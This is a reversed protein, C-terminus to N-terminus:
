RVIHTSVLGNPQRSVSATQIEGSRAMAELQGILSEVTLKPAPPPTEDAEVVLTDTADKLSVDIDYLKQLAPPIPLGQEKLYVAYELRYVDFNKPVKVTSKPGRFTVEINTYERLKRLTQYAVGRSGVLPFQRFLENSTVEPHTFFYDVAVKRGLKIPSVYAPKSM